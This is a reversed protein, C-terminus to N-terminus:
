LQINMETNQQLTRIVRIVIQLSKDEHDNM